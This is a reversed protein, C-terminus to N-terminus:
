PAGFKLISITTDCVFSRGGHLRGTIRIPVEGQGPIAALISATDFFCLVKGQESTGFIRPTTSQVSGPTLVLPTSAIEEMGYGVPLHVVVMLDPTAQSQNRWIHTPKLFAQGQISGACLAVDARARSPAAQKSTVSVTNAIVTNPEVTEKVRAVLKLDAEGGAVLLPIRWTYTHAVVDYLGYDRDGDATVFTMEPPLADVITVQTVAVDRSPNRLQVSYTVEEGTGVCPRGRDDSEGAPSVVTKRVELAAFAVTIDAGTTVQPTQDSKLTATNTLVAGTQVNESLRVVLDVCGEGRAALSPYTWTYTHTRSDYAGFVGDGTASVFQMYQSLADVIVVNRVEHDNDKNDFCIRYTVNGGPRAYVIPEEDTSPEPSIVTKRLNLPNYTAETAIAGTSISSAATQDSDITVKNTIIQGPITHSQLRCVLELCTRTGPVLPPNQWTYTHATSDYRGFSGHGTASVFVLEAPLKDVVTIGTPNLGGDDFGISYTVLDGIIIYYLGQDNPKGGLPNKVTKALHLPNTDVSTVHAPIVLGTPRGIDEITQILVLNPDYVMLDKGGPRNDRGTTLYVLGTEPDVALGMVGAEPDVLVEKQSWDSLKHQTLHFNNAFGGGYYLYDREPDIAVSLAPRETPRTRVRSWDATNYVGIGQMPSAVYLLDGYEDLVIGYMEAGELTFPSGLVATLQYRVPDWHLVHLDSSGLQACYLLKKHHDYAIGALNDAHFGVTATSQALTTTNTILISICNEYTSFLYGSDCDMTIGRMGAGLFPVDFTTQYSLSGNPDIEYVQIPIPGDFSVISAVVYMSKATALGATALLILAAAVAVHGLTRRVTRAQYGFSKMHGTQGSTRYQIETTM